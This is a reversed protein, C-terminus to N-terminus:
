YVFEKSLCNGRELYIYEYYLLIPLISCNFLRQVKSFLNQWKHNRKLDFFAPFSQYTDWKRLQSFSFYDISCGGHSRFLKEFLKCIQLIQLKKKWPDSEVLVDSCVIVCNLLKKFPLHAFISRITPANFPLLFNCRNEINSM